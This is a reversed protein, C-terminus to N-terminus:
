PALLEVISSKYRVRLSTRQRGLVPYPPNLPIPQSSSDDGLSLVEDGAIGGFPFFLEEPICNAVLVSDVILIVPLIIRYSSEM